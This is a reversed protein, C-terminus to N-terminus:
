ELRSQYDMGSIPSRPMIWAIFLYQWHVPYSPACEELAEGFRIYSKFIHHLGNHSYKTDDNLSGLSDANEDKHGDFASCFGAVSTRFNSHITIFDYRIIHQGNWPQFRALGVDEAICSQIKTRHFNGLLSTINSLCNINAVTCDVHCLNFVPLVSSVVTWIARRYQGDAYRVNVLCCTWRLIHYLSFILFLCGRRKGADQNTKDTKCWGLSHRFCLFASHM